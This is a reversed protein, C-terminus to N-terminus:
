YLRDSVSDLVESPDDNKVFNKLSKRIENLAKEHYNDMVTTRKGTEKSGSNNQLGDRNPTSTGSAGSSSDSPVIM